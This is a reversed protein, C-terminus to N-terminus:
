FVVRSIEFDGLSLFSAKGELSDTSVNQLSFLVEMPLVPDVTTYSNERTIMQWEHHTFIYAPYPCPSSLVIVSSLALMDYLDSWKLGNSKAKKLVEIQYQRLRRSVNITGVKWENTSERLLENEISILDLKIEEDEEPRTKSINRTVKKAM